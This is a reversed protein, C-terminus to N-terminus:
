QIFGITNLAFSTDNMEDTINFIEAITMPKPECDTIGHKLFLKEVKDAVLEKFEYRGKLRGKRLIAKDINKLDTNFTCIVKLYLADSLLGDGLNLLNAIASSTNGSIDRSKIIEECDEIILISDKYDKIFPIFKPSSIESVIYSPMYIFTKHINSILHRIYTTKGTGQKGHLIVLGSNKDEKLFNIIADNVPIFDDNYNDNINVDQKRIDFEEIELGSEAYRSNVILNFRSKSENKIVHKRIIEQYCHIQENKNYYLTVDHLEIEILVKDKLKMVCSWNEDAGDSLEDDTSDENIREIESKFIEKSEPFKDIIEKQLLAVNFKGRISYSNYLEDYLFMYLRGINLSEDPLLYLNQNKSTEM